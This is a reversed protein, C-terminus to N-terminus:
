RRLLPGPLSKGALITLRRRRGNKVGNDAGGTQKEGAQEERVEEVEEALRDGDEEEVGDPVSRNDGFSGRRM